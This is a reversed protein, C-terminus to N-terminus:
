FYEIDWVQGSVCRQGQLAGPLSAHVFCSGQIHIEVRLHAAEREQIQRAKTTPVFPEKRKPNAGPFTQVSKGARRPLKVAM